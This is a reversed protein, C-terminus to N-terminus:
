REDQEAALEEAWEPAQAVADDRFDQDRLQELKERNRRRRPITLLVLLRVSRFYLALVLGVLLGTVVSSLVMGRVLADHEPVASAVGGSDSVGHQGTYPM